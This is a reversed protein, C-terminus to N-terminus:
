LQYLAVVLTATTDTSHVRKAKVYLYSGVAATFNVIRDDPFVVRVVGAGGVYLADCVTRGAVTPFNVTDSKTVAQAYNYPTIQQM